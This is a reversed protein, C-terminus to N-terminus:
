NGPSFGGSSKGEIVEVGREFKKEKVVQGKRDFIKMSGHKLGNRYEIETVIVGKRDFEKMTGHLEGGKYEITNAPYKGGPYYATWTGEKKGAKYNGEETKRYDKESFSVYLGDRESEYIVRDKMPGYSVKPKKKIVKYHILEKPKGNDYYSMWEGSKQGMDYEGSLKLKGNPNYSTWKGHLKGKKFGSENKPNGNDWFNQWPGEELGFEYNGKMLLKGNEYWTEWLGHKQDNEYSGKKFRSGDKYHYTWQGVKKDEKYEATYSLEGTPYWYTWKGDQKGEKFGGEMDRDGKKTYWTWKGDKLGSRYYGSVNVQDNDYYYEYSGDLKGEVYNAVKEIKGTYYFYEWKDTKLGKEYKGRLLDHGYISREVFEGHPLGDQYQFWQKLTGTNFFVTMEGNGDKLTQTHLSDPLWFQMVYVQSDRYEEELQPRGDLYYTKKAGTLKGHDYMAEVNLQGNEYWERYVSDQVDLVFYGEQRNKGNGYKLLVQGHLQDKYYNRVEVLQNSENYYKWKGHKLTTAGLDDVYYSGISQLQTKGFDWYFSQKKSLNEKWVKQAMSGFAMFLLLILLGPKISRM